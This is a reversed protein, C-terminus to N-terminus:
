EQEIGWEVRMGNKALMESENENENELRCVRPLGAGFM